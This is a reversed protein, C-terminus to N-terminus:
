KKYYKKKMTKKKYVVNSNVVKYSRVEMVDDYYAVLKTRIMAGYYNTSGFDFYVVPIRPANSRVKAYGRYAAYVKLKDPNNVSEKIEKYTRRALKKFDTIVTKLRYKVKGKKATITVRGGKKARVKGTKKKIKLRKKKSSSWKPKKVGVPKPAKKKYGKAIYWYGRTIHFTYKATNGGAMVLKLVTKGYRKPYVTVTGTNRSYLTMSASAMKPKSNKLRLHTNAYDYTGTYTFPISVSYVDKFKGSKKPFKVKSPGINTVKLTYEGTGNLIVYYNNGKPLYVFTNSPAYTYSQYKKDKTAIGWKVSGSKSTVQVRINTNSGLNFKYGHYNESQSTGSFKATFQKGFVLNFEKQEAKVTKADYGVFCTVVLAISLVIPIVKKM